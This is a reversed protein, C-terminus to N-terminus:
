CKCDAEGVEHHIMYHTGESADQILKKIRWVPIFHLYPRVEEVLGRFTFLMGGSLQVPAGKGSTWRYGSETRSDRQPEIVVEVVMEHHQQFYSDLAPHHIFRTLNESRVPYPSVSVINGLLAGYEGSKIAALEIFVEGNLKVKGGDEIPLYGYFLTEVESPGKGKVSIGIGQIEIFITGFFFWFLASMILAIFVGKVIWQRYQFPLFLHEFQNANSYNEIAAPRYVLEDNENENEDM